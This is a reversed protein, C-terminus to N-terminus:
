FYRSGPHNFFFGAVSAAPDIMDSETLRLGIREQVQLLSWIKRKHAHSPCASYGPAPRIGRYKEKLLDDLSLNEDRGFGFFARERKHAWEAAAEAIRDALAKVLIAKYDDNQRYFSQAFAEVDRGATVAFMGLYDTRGLAKPEIFDALSFRTSPAGPETAVDELQREFTISELVRGNRDFGGLSHRDVFHEFICFGFTAGEAFGGVVSEIFCRHIGKFGAAGTTDGEGSGVGSNKASDGAAIARGDIALDIQHM